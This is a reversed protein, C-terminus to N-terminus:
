ISEMLNNVIQVPSQVTRGTIKHSNYFADHGLWLTKQLEALIAACHGSRFFFICYPCGKELFAVTIAGLPKAEAVLIHSM